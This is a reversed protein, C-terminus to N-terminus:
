GKHGLVSRCEVRADISVSGRASFTTAMRTSVGANDRPDNTYHVLNSTLHLPPQLGQAM